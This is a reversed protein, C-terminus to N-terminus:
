GETKHFKGDDRLEYRQGMGTGYCVKERVACMPCVNGWVGFRPIYADSFRTKIANGCRPIDCVKPPNAYTVDSMM